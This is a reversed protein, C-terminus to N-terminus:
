SAKLPIRVNFTVNAGPAAIAVVLMLPRGSEDFTLQPREMHSVKQEPRDAWHLALDSVLFPRARQWSRSDSSQFLVLTSQHAGSAVGHNDKMICFFRSREPDFWMFPDEFPFTEGSVLFLPNLEKKFPGTPSTSSAMLHVVPGGFPLPNKRGVAKYLLRYMGDKGSTLTPNAVCLSDPASAEPSVDIVPQDFRQWPGYPSSAVAVGIRQNNRHVMNLGTTVIGDGTNGMYYLYYKDGFRQVTPNHTVMGDWHEKGRPPLAVDHFTFTGFSTDTTAHAIESKVVWSQEGFEKPWRSYFMHYKGDESRIVTGGWVEYGDQRFLATSPIPQLMGHLDPAESFDSPPQQEGHLRSAIALSSLTLCFSRRTSDM